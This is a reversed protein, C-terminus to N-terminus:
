RASLSWPWWPISNGDFSCHKFLHSTHFYSECPHCSGLNKLLVNGLAHRSAKRYHMRTGPTGRTISVGPWWCSRFLFVHNMVSPWRRASEATSLPWWLCGPQDTTIYCWVAIVIKQRTWWQAKRQGSKIMSVVASRSCGVLSATQTHDVRRAMVGYEQGNEQKWCM